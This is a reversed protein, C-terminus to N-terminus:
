EGELITRYIAQAVLMDHETDIDIGENPDKIEVLCPKVGVRRGYTEFVERTFAFAGSTELYMPELDQTRPFRNPDFNLPRGEQWVFTRLPEVTFASDYEGSAVAEVCRDISEPRTFPATAHSVVYVDADVVKMFERIIDNCNCDNGDLYPPRELFRTRGDLYEEIRHSSCYVYIEDIKKSRALARLIFQVLATGDCFRRVNKERVRESNLKIPVMAVVKM